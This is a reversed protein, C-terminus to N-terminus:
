PVTGRGRIDNSEQRGDNLREFADRFVDDYRRAIVNIDHHKVAFKRGNESLTQWIEPNDKLL